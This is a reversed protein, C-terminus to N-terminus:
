CGLGFDDRQALGFLPFDLMKEHGYDKKEELMKRSGMTGQTRSDLLLTTLKVQEKRRSTCRAHEVLPAFPVPQWKKM